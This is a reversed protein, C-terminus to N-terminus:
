WKVSTTECWRSEWYLYIAGWLLFIADMQRDTLMMMDSMMMELWFWDHVTRCWWKWDHVTRCWWKWDHVTRCWWKLRTQKLGMYGTGSIVWIGGVYVQYCVEENESDWVQDEERLEMKWYKPNRTWLVPNTVLVKWCFYRSTSTSYCLSSSPTSQPQSYTDTSRVEGLQQSPCSSKNTPWCLSLDSLGLGLGVPFLCNTESVRVGGRTLSPTHKTIRKPFLRKFSFLQSSEPFLVGSSFHVNREGRIRNNRRTFIYLTTCLAWQISRREARDNEYM